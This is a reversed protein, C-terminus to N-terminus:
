TYSGFVLVVPREGRLSSLRVTDKRDLTPLTFDPALDGVRLAGDRAHCWMTEMPVVAFAPGPLYSLGKAAVAPRQKMLIYLGVLVVAYVALTVAAIRVARARWGRPNM